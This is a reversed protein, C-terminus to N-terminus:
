KGGTRQRQNLLRASRKQRDPGPENEGTRRVGSNILSATQEAVVDTPELNQGQQLEPVAARTAQGFRQQRL